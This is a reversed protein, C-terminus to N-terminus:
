ATLREVSTLHGMAKVNTTLRRHHCWSSLSLLAAIAPLLDSPPPEHDPPSPKVDPPMDDTFVAAAQPLISGAVTAAERSSLSTSCIADILLFDFPPLSSSASSARPLVFPASSTPWCQASPLFTGKKYHLGAQTINPPNHLRLPNDETKRAWTKRANPGLKGLM